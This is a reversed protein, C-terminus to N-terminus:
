PATPKVLKLMSIYMAAWWVDPTFWDSSCTATFMKTMRSFKTKKRKVTFGICIAPTTIVM